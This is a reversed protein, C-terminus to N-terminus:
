ANYKDAEKQSSFEQSGREQLEQMKQQLADASEKMKAVKKDFEDVSLAESVDPMDGASGKMADGVKELAKAMDTGVRDATQKLSDLKKKTDQVGKDIGATNM